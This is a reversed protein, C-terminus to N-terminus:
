GYIGGDVGSSSTSISVEYFDVQFGSTWNSRIQFLRNYGSFEPAHFVHTEGSRLWLRIWRASYQNPGFVERIYATRSADYPFGEFESYIGFSEGNSQGIDIWNTSVLASGLLTAQM